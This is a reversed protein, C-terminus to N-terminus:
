DFDDRSVDLGDPGIEGERRSGAALFAGMAVATVLSVLVWLVVLAFSV